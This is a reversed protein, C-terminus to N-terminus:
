LEAGSFLPMVEREIERSRQAYSSSIPTAPESLLFYRLCETPERKSSIVWGLKRLESVRNPLRLIGLEIAPIRRRSRTARECIEAPATKGPTREPNAVSKRPRRATNTGRQNGETAPWWFWAVVKFDQTEGGQCARSKTKQTDM